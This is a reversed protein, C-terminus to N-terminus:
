FPTKSENDKMGSRTDKIKEIVTDNKVLLKLDNHNVHKVAGTFVTQWKKKLHLLLYFLYILRFERFKKLNKSSKLHNLHFKKM